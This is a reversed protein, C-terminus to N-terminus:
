RDGGHSKLEHFYTALIHCKTSSESCRQRLSNVRSYVIRECGHALETQLRRAVKVIIELHKAGIHKMGDTVSWDEREQEGGPTRPAM